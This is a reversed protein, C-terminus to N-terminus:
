RCPPRRPPRAPDLLRHSNFGVVGTLCVPTDGCCKAQKTTETSVPHRGSPPARLCTRRDERLDPPFRVWTLASYSDAAVGAKAVSRHRGGPEAPRFVPATAGPQVNEDWGRPDFWSREPKPRARLGVAGPHSTTGPGSHDGPVARQKKSPAQWPVRMMMARRNESIERPVRPACRPGHHLRPNRSHM